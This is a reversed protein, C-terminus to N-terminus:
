FILLGEPLSLNGQLGGSHIILLRSGKPFHNRGALDLVGYFMKATYVFDTPIQTQEYFQNMFAILESNRKAYGGFHYDANIQLNKNGLQSVSHSQLFSIPMKLVCFGIVTQSPNSAKALGKATTGTGWACLIHSFGSTDILRLIEKSGEIGATGSGGEAVLHYGPYDIKVAELFTKTDKTRYQERSIFRLQMGNAQAMQLSHSLTKSREGRVIGVSPLNISGAAFSAAVLHNSFAGGFSVLGASGNRIILDLHPKLKFWKNGSIVPHIKDLRLVSAELGHQRLIPLEIKDLTALETHVLKTVPNEM